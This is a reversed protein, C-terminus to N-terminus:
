VSPQRTARLEAVFSSHLQLHTLSLLLSSPVDAMGACVRVRVWVGDGGERRQRLVGRV